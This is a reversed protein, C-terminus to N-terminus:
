TGSRLIAKLAANNPDDGTKAVTTVAAEAHKQAGAVRPARGSGAPTAPARPPPKGNRSTNGSTGRGQQQQQKAGERVMRGIFADALLMRIGPISRLQPAERLTAEVAVYGQSGKNKLWPFEKVALGEAQAKQQLFARQKPGHEQLTEETDALIKGIQSKDFRVVGEPPNEPDEVTVIGGTKKDVFAGDPNALAFRRLKRADTLKKDLDAETQCDALPNDPTARPAVSGAKDLEEEAAQRAQREQQLETSLDVIRQAKDSLLTKVAKRQDKPLSAILRQERRDTKDTEDGEEGEEEADDAGAEDKTEDGEDSAAEDTEEEGAEDGEDAGEAGDENDGDAGAGEGKTEGEGDIDDEAEGDTEDADQAAGKVPAAASGNLIHILDQDTPEASGKAGSAPAAAEGGQGPTAPM